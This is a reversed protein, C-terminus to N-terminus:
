RMIKLILGVAFLAVAAIIVYGGVTMADTGAGEIGEKVGTPVAAYAQSGVAALTTGLM